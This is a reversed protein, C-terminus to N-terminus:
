LNEPQSQVRQDLAAIVSSNVQPLNVGDQELRDNPLRIEFRAVGDPLLTVNTSAHLQGSLASIMAAGIGGSKKVNAVDGIDAVAISNVQEGKALSVHLRGGSVDRCAHEFANTVVENLILALPTAEDLSVTFDNGEILCVVDDRASAAKLRDCLTSLFVAVSFAGAGHADFQDHVDAM